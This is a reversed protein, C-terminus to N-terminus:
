THKPTYKLCPLFVLCIYRPFASKMEFLSPVFSERQDIHMSTAMSHFVCAISASGAQIIRPSHLNKSKIIIIIIIIVIVIIIIILNKKM